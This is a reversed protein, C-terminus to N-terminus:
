SSKKENKVDFGPIPRGASAKADKNAMDTLFVELDGRRMKWYHAMAADGDTLTATWNDRLTAARFGTFGAGARPKEREAVIAVHHAAKADRVAVDVVEADDLRTIDAAQALAQADAIAKDAAERLVRERERQENDLRVLWPTLAAQLAATARVTLGTVSKTDSILPAYKKQVAAKARDAEENELKRAENARKEAIAIMGKLRAVEDAQAQTEIPAGDLWLRAEGYLDEIQKKVSEYTPSVAPAEEPPPHNHGVGAIAAGPKSAAIRADDDPLSDLFVIRAELADLLLSPGDERELKNRANVLHTYVMENIVLPGRSSPYHTPLDTM